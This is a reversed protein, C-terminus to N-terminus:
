KRTIKKNERMHIDKKKKNRDVGGWYKGVERM